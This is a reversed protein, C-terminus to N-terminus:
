SNAFKVYMPSHYLHIWPTYICNWLLLSYSLVLLIYLLVSFSVVECWQQETCYVAWLYPAPTRKWPFSIYRQESSESKDKHIHSTINFLNQLTYKNSDHNLYLENLVCWARKGEIVFGFNTWFSAAWRTQIKSYLCATSLWLVWLLNIAHSFCFTKNMFAIYILM